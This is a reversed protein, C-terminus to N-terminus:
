AEQAPNKGLPLTFYFTSGVGLTSEVWIQGGHQLVINKCIALGLGTGGKQRADSVDVQQFRGFITELKDAPIGRGQDAIAFLLYPTSQPQPPTPTHPTPHPTYPIPPHTDAEQGTPSSASGSGDAEQGGVEATLMVCSGAESFKIANSLLNTLTQIIADPAAWVTTNLPAQYLTIAADLAIAEVSEVSQQMLDAVQCPERVLVVRGSELRELHLIDDVLRTLRESNSLAVKLMRKAQDPRNNFIGTDLLGLSGRIATLPTRLEHSVVSIFEQKIRDLKYRDSVDQLQMVAYLPHGAGDRILTGNLAMWIPRGQRHMFRLQLPITLPQNQWLNHLADKLMSQDEFHVRDHLIQQTLEAEGYGLTECLARNVQFLTGDRHLLAMGIAADDFARRFREESNRLSAETQKRQCASAFIEGILRLSRGDDVTWTKMEQVADFGIFGFLRGESTIPVCLLSQIGQQQFHIREVKAEPPLHAIAPIYVMHTQQLQAILWPLSDLPLNQLQGKAAFVGPACWEHTNSFRSGDLSFQFLYCRDVRAFRGLQALAAEISADVRELRLNIFQTSIQSILTELNLRFELAATREAIKEDLEANIRELVANLEGLEKDKCYSQLAEQVVGILLTDDWPKPIYRFLRAMNVANGIADPTAHGTLMVSRTKPSNNHIRALLEDGKLGPMLQDSIVLPIETHDRLLEGLVELAEEGSEAIEIVFENGLIPSLVDRLSALVLREDDVCLITPKGM